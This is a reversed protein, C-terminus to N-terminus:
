APLGAMAPMEVRTIASIPYYAGGVMVQPTSGQGDIATVQGIIANGDPDTLSVQRSLYSNALSLTQGANMQTVSMAMQAISQRPPMARSAAVQGVRETSRATSSANLSLVILPSRHRLVVTRRPM